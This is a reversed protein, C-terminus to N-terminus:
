EKTKRKEDEDEILKSHEGTELDSFLSAWMANAANVLHSASMRNFAITGYTARLRGRRADATFFGRCFAERQSDSLNMHDLTVQWFFNGSLEHILETELDM